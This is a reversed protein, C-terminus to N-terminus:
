LCLMIITIRKYVEHRITVDETKAYLIINHTEFRTTIDSLARKM